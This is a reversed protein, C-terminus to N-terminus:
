PQAGQEIWCTFLEIQEETLPPGIPMVSGIGTGLLKDVLYSTDTSGPDVFPLDSQTSPLNLLNDIATDPPELELGNGVTSGASHCAPNTACSAEIIPLIQSEFDVPDACDGVVEVIEVREFLDRDGDLVCGTLAASVVAAILWAAMRRAGQESLPYIM